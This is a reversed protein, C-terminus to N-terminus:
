SRSAAATNATHLNIYHSRPNAYVIIVAAIDQRSLLDAYQKGAGADESYLEVSSTGAALNQASKLSRSYVARLEFDPTAQM